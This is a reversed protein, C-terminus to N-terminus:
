EYLYGGGVVDLNIEIIEEDEFQRIGRVAIVDKGYRDFVTPMIDTRKRAQGLFRLFHNKNYLVGDLVVRRNSEKERIRACLQGQDNTYEEIYCEIRDMDTEGKLFSVMMNDFKLDATYSRNEPNEPFVIQILQRMTRIKKSSWDKKFDVHKFIDYDRFFSAWDHINTNQVFWEKIPIGDLTVKEKFITVLALMECYEAEIETSQYFGDVLGERYGIMRSDTTIKIGLISKYRRFGILMGIKAAAEAASQIGAKEMELMSTYLFNFLYKWEVSFYALSYFVMNKDSTKSLKQWSQVYADYQNAIDVFRPNPIKKVSSLRHRWIAKVLELDGINGMEFVRMESLQYGKLKDEIDDMEQLPVNEIDIGFSRIYEFEKEKARNVDKLIRKYREYVDETIAKEEEPNNLFYRLSHKEETADFAYKICELIVQDIFDDVDLTGSFVFHIYEQPYIEFLYNTIASGIRLIVDNM